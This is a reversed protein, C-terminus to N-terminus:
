QLLVFKVELTFIGVGDVLFGGNVCRRVRFTPTTVIFVALIFM